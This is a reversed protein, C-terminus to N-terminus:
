ALLRRKRARLVSDRIAGLGVLELLASGAINIRALATPPDILLAQGWAKLASGPQGGDLRYRADVRHASARARRAVSRFAPGVAPDGQAWDLIRFAEQGFETARARNKAGAHYRARAWTAEVHVVRGRAALKIWLQHDLLLHLDPDLGGAAEFAERRMFVAPQGIIQFCLLDELNLQRYRLTNIMQGRDDIVEMDSYAMAVDPHAQIVRVADEIAGPRYADDSNLWAIIEGHAHAMGKNIAEAQGRDEESVWWALRDSYKHIIELSGDTSGGDVVMYELDPYHQGLVSCIAEELFPAQNFSPTVVSVLTM